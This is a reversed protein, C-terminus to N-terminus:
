NTLQYLEASATYKNETHQKIPSSARIDWKQTTKYALLSVYGM